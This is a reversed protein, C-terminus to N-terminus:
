DRKKSPGCSLAFLLATGSVSLIIILLTAKWGLFMLTLGFFVLGAICFFLMTRMVPSAVLVKFISKIGKM